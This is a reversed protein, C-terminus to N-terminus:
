PTLLRIKNKKNIFSDTKKRLYKNLFLKNDKEYSFDRKITKINRKNNNNNFNNKNYFISKIKIGNIVFCNDFIYILKNLRNENINYNNIDKEKNINNLGIKYDEICKSLFIKIQNKSRIEELNRQKHKKVINKLERNKENLNYIINKLQFNNQSNSFTNLIDKSSAYTTTLLKSSSFNNNLNNISTHSSFLNLNSSNRSNKPSKFNLSIAKTKINFYNKNNLSERKNENFSFNNFKKNEEEKEINFISKETKYSNLKILDKNNNNNNEENNEYIINEKQTYNIIKNKSIKEFLNNNLISQQEIIKEFDKQEKLLVNKKVKLDLNEKILFEINKNLDAFNNKITSFEKINKSNNSFTGIQKKIIQELDYNQKNELIKFSDIIKEELKDKDEIFKEKKWKELDNIMSINDIYTEKIKEFKPNKYFYENLPYNLSNLYAIYNLLQPEFNKRDKNYINNMKNKIDNIENKMEINKNMLIKTEENLKIKENKEKIKKNLFYSNKRKM